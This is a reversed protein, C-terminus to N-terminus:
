VQHHRAISTYFGTNNIVFAMNRACSKFCDLVFCGDDETYCCFDRQYYFISVQM